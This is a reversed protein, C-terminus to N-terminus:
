AAKAIGMSERLQQYTYPDRGRASSSGAVDPAAHSRYYPPWSEVLQRMADETPQAELLQFHEPELRQVIVGSEALIQSVLTKRELAGIRELLKANADTAPQQTSEKTQKCAPCDPNATGEKAEAPKSEEGEGEKLRAPFLTQVKATLDAESLKDDGALAALQEKLSKPQTTPPQESKKTMSEIGEYLSTVTAPYRVLDVSFVNFVDEVIPEGNKSELSGDANHSLGFQEPMRQAMEVMAPAASHSKLYELDGYVGDGGIRVNILRGFADSVSRANDDDVHNLNVGVGDYLRAASEMAKRSYRRGNKSSPGLIKVGRIVGADADVSTNPTLRTLEHLRAM